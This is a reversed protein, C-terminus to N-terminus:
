SFHLKASLPELVVMQRAQFMQNSSGPLLQLVAVEELDEVVLKELVVVEELVEEALVQEELVVTRDKPTSQQASSANRAVPWAQDGSCLRPLLVRSLLVLRVLAKEVEGELPFLVLEQRLLVQEQRPLLEPRKQDRSQYQEM